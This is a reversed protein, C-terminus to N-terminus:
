HTKGGLSRLFVLIKVPQFHLGLQNSLKAIDIIFVHNENGRIIESDILDIM